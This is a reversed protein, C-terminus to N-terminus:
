QAGILHDFSARHKNMASRPLATPGDQRSSVACRCVRSAAINAAISVDLARALLRVVPLHCGRHRRCTSRTKIAEPYEPGRGQYRIGHDPESIAAIM